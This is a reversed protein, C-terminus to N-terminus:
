GELSSEEHLLSIAQRILKKLKMYTDLYNTLHQFSELESIIHNNLSILIQIWVAIKLSSALSCLGQSSAM